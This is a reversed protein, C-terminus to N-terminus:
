SDSSDEEPCWLSSAQCQWSPRACRKIVEPTKGLEAPIEKRVKGWENWRRGAKSEAQLWLLGAAKERGDSFTEQEWLHGRFIAVPSPSSDSLSKDLIGRQVACVAASCQFTPLRQRVLWSRFLVLVFEPPNYLRQDFKFYIAPIFVPPLSPVKFWWVM